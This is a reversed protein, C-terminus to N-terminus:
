FRATLQVGYTRPEGPIFTAMGISDGTNGADKIYDKDLLNEVFAEIRFRSGSFNYGVRASVLAFGNQFEDQVTDAVIKGRAVTQLDPRDNDNDFFVKSQYTVAPTFDLRGGPVDAGLTMGASFTHDPSLRFRNGNFVGSRFRGHNFAYNAFLRLNQTPNYRLQAEFGYSDAKGANSTIFVTGVQETTQFNNYKYYFIAGDLYLTRDLLAAKAGVEYSDVTEAPANVFRAPGGPVFPPAATLVQPRRGRAYIAYLSTDPTPTYRAYGRWTFGNDTFDQDTRPTAQFTLGFLPLLSTPLVQAFSSSLGSLLATRTPDPVTFAGLFGGLISRGNQIDASVGSSKDDHTWRLGAGLEFQPSLKASVDGFLDFANTRSFSTQVEQHVPKLNAAICSAVPSTGNCTGAAPL